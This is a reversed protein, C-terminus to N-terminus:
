IGQEHGFSCSCHTTSAKPQQLRKHNPTSHKHKFGNQHSIILINETIYPITNQCHTISTIYTVLKHWHQPRQKIKSHPHNHCMKLCPTTFTNTNIINYMNKLYGIALPAKLHKINIGDPGTSNNNTSNSIALQVETYYYTM